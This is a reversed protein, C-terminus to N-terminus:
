ANKKGDTNSKALADLVRYAAQKGGDDANRYNDLLVQEEPTIEKSTTRVGTLLYLVDIGHGALNMLYAADPKRLSKEYNSQTDKQVGGLVAFATQNLKMHKRIEVLRRSFDDM